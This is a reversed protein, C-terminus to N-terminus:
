TYMCHQQRNYPIEGVWEGEQERLLGDMNEETRLSGVAEWNDENEFLSMM